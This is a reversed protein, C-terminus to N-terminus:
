CVFFAFTSDFIHDGACGAQVSKNINASRKEYYGVMEFATRPWSGAPIAPLRTTRVALLMRDHRLAKGVGSNDQGHDQRESGSRTTGIADFGRHGQGFAANLRLGYCAENLVFGSAERLDQEIM